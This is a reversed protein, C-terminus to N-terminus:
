RVARVARADEVPGRERQEGDGDEARDAQAVRPEPPGPDRDALVLRGGRRHANRQHPGLGPGVRAPREEAPDGAGVERGELAGGKRLVEVEVDRHEDEAHDDEAAHAVHPPHHEPSREERVQVPPNAFVPAQNLRCKPVGDVHGLVGSPMKPTIM